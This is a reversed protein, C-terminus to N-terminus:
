VAKEEPDTPAPATSQEPPSILRKIRHYLETAEEITAAEIFEALHLGDSAFHFGKKIEPAIVMKNKAPFDLM